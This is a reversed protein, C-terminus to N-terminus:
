LATPHLLSSPMLDLTGAEPFKTALQSSEAPPHIAKPHLYYLCVPFEHLGGPSKEPFVIYSTGYSKVLTGLPRDLGSGRRLLSKEAEKAGPPPATLSRGYM